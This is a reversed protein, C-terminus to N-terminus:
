MELDENLQRRRNEGTIELIRDEETRLEQIRKELQSRKSSRDKDSLSMWIDIQKQNVVRGSKVIPDPGNCIIEIKKELKKIEDEQELILAEPLISEIQEIRALKSAMTDIIQGNREIIDRQARADAKCLILLERYHTITPKFSEEKNELRKLVKHVSQPTIDKINALSIFEDHNKILFCIEAIEEESYEMNRLIQEAM